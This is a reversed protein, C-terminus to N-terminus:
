RGITNAREARIINAQETRRKEVKAKVQQITNYTAVQALEQESNWTKAQIDFVGQNIEIGVNDKRKADEIKSESKNPEKGNVLDYSNIVVEYGRRENYNAM